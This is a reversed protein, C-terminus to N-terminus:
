AADVSMDWVSRILINEPLVPSTLLAQKRQEVLAKYEALRATKEQLRESLPLLSDRQKLLLQAQRFAQHAMRTDDFHIGHSAYLTTEIIRGALSMAQEGNVAQNFVEALLYNLNKSVTTKGRGASPSRQITLAAVVSRALQDGAPLTDLSAHGLTSLNAALRTAIRNNKEMGSVRFSLLRNLNTSLSGDFSAGGEDPQGQSGQCGGILSLMGPGALLCVSTLSTSKIFARRTLGGSQIRSDSM